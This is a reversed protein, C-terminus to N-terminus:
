RTMDSSYGHEPIVAPGVSYLLAAGYRGARRGHAETVCSSAKLIHLGLQM